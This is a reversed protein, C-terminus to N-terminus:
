IRVGMVLGCFGEGAFPSADPWRNPNWHTAMKIVPELARISWRSRVTLASDPMEIYARAAGKKTEMGGEHIEINGDSLAAIDEFAARWDDTIAQPTEGRAGQLIRDVSEPMSAAMLQFRAWREDPWRFLVSHETCAYASPEDTAILFEVSSVALHKPTGVALGPFEIDIGSRNNIAVIRNDTLRVSASWGQEGVFQLAQKLKDSFGEPLLQWEVELDTLPPPEGPVTQITSKLRGQKVVIHDAHLTITPEKQMRAIAAELEEGPVNLDGEPGDYIAGAQLYENSAFIFGEKIFFCGLLGATPGHAVAGKLFQISSALTM